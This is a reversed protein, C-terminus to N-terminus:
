QNLVADLESCTMPLQDISGTELFVLCEEKSQDYANKTPQYTIIKNRAIREDFTETCRAPFPCDYSTVTIIEPRHKQPQPAEQIKILSCGTLLSLLILYKM